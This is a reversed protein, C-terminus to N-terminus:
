LAFQTAKWKKIDKEKSVACILEYWKTASTDWNFKELVEKAEKVPKRLLEDLDYDYLYPNIYHATEGYIERLTPIDSIIIPKNYYLAEMPPIGFGEMFSPLLFAKCSKYLAIMQEDSIYGTYIINNNIGYYPEFEEYNKIGGAIVFISNKCKDAEKFIWEINKNRVLRGVFLFFQNEPLGLSTLIEKEEQIPIIHQWANPIVIIKKENIRGFKIIDKKSCESVTVIAKAVKFSQIARIKSQLIRSPKLGVVGKYFVYMDHRTVISNRGVALGNSFDVFIAKEKQVVPFLELFAFYKNTSKFLIVEINIYNFLQAHEARVFVKCEGHKFYSDLRKLIELAYRTTGSINDTFSWGNVVVNM